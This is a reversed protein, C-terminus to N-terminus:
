QQQKKKKALYYLFPQLLMIAKRNLTIKRNKLLPLFPDQPMWLLVANM